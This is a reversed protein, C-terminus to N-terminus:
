ERTAGRAIRAALHMAEDWTDVGEVTREGTSIATRAGNADYAQDEIDQAIRERVSRDYAELVAEDAGDGDGVYDRLAERVIDAPATPWEDTM